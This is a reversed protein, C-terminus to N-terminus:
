QLTEEVGKIPLTIIVETGKNLASEVELTGGQVECLAKAIPLGLGTGNFARNLGTEVQRFPELAVRILDPSIGVGSDRILIKIHSEVTMCLISINGDEPTFKIANGLINLVIQRLKVPDARIIPLDEDLTCEVIVNADQAVAGLMKV